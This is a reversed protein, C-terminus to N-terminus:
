YTQYGPNSKYLLVRTKGLIYITETRIPYIHFSKGKHIFAGVM